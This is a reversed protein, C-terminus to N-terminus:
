ATLQRFLWVTEEINRRWTYKQCWKLGRKTLERAFNEETLVKFILSALLDTNHPDVILAGGGSVEPIASSDSAIVPVGCAMAELPPIGFTEYQSLYVALSAARYFLPLDWHHVYDVFKV